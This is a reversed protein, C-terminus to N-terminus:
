RCHVSGKLSDVELVAAAVVGGDWALQVQAFIDLLQTPRQFYMANDEEEESGSEDSEEEPAQVQWWRWWRARWGCCKAHPCCLPLPSGPNAAGKMSICLIVLPPNSAVWNLVGAPGVGDCCLDPSPARVAAAAAAAAAEIEADDGGKEAEASAAALAAQQRAAELAAAQDLRRQARRDQRAQM